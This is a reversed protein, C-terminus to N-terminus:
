LADPDLAKTRGARHEKLAEDALRKLTQQSEAFATEWRQDVTLEELIAAALEDPERGPLRSAPEFAKKLAKTMAPAGARITGSTRGPSEVGVPPMQASRGPEAAPAAAGGLRFNLARDGVTETLDSCARDM